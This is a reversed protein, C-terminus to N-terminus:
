RPPLLAQEVTDHVPMAGDLGVIRLVKRPLGHGLVLRLPLGAAETRRHFDELVAVGAMTLFPASAWDLVVGLVGDRDDPGLRSRVLRLLEQRTPEANSIDVEAPMTVIVSGNRISLPLVTGSPRGRGLRCRHVSGYPSGASTEHADGGYPGFEGFEGPLVDGRATM